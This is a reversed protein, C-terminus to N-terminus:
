AVVRLDTSERDVVRTLVHPGKPSWNQLTIVITRDEARIPRLKRALLTGLKDDHTSVVVQREEKARRLLDTLGLLNINDLSQVPDDLFAAGLPLNAVGLNLSLFISLALVNLQSSSLVQNPDQAGIDYTPDMVRPWLRGKRYYTKTDLIVDRFSPHPDLRRYIRTLLPALGQVHSGVIHSEAEQLQTLLHKAVEGTRKRRSLDATLQDAKAVTVLLHRELDRRRSEETSRAHRIALAEGQARLNRLMDIREQIDKIRAELFDRAEGWETFVSGLAKIGSEFEAIRAISERGSLRATALQREAAALASAAEGREKTVRDVVDSPEPDIPKVAALAELRRALEDRNVDQECVPCVDGLLRLALGSLAARTKALDQEALLAALDSAAQQRAAVLADDAIVLAEKARTVALELEQQSEEESLASALARVAEWSELLARAQDVLRLDSRRIADLNRIAGDLSVAAGASELGPTEVEVGAQRIATWWTSWDAQKLVPEEPGEGLSEIRHRAQEAAGALRNRQAQTENVAQSWARSARDLEAQLETVRGVGVLESFAAFRESDSDAEIFDRVRDQQLYVSRTIAGTLAERSNVTFEADPWLRRYLESEAGADPVPEGNVAVLLREVADDTTRTIRLTDQEQCLELSVRAKGSRAYRSVCAVKDGLRPIRGTLVWLLADFFSTKGQGNAGVLVVANGELDFVTEETFARFGGITMSKVRM